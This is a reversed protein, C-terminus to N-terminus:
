NYPLYQAAGPNVQALKDMEQRYVEVSLINAIVWFYPALMNKYRKFLNGSITINSNTHIEHLMYCSIISKLHFCCILLSYSTQKTELPPGMVFSCNVFSDGRTHVVGRWSSAIDVRREGM